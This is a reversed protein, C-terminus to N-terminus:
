ETPIEAVQQVYESNQTEYTIIQSSSSRVMGLEQTAVQIVYDLDVSAEIDYEKSDNLVTLDEIQYELRNIQTTLENNKSITSLLVVCFGVVVVGAAAAAFSRIIKEKREAAKQAKIKALRQQRARLKRHRSPDDLTRALNDGIFYNRNNSKVNRETRREM